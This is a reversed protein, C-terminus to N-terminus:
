SPALASFVRQVAPALVVILVVPFICLGLPLTLKPPLSAAKEEARALRKDRMEDSFTSLALAVDTGLELTQRLLSAFSFAERVGVREAWDRLAEGLSRGARVEGAMLELNVRFERDEPGIERAARDLAAEMGLGANICVVLMDLYDPFVSQYRARLLRRRRKLYTGPLLYALGAILLVAILREASRDEPLLAALAVFGLLPLIALLAIRALAFAAPAGPDFHGAQVLEARLRRRADAKLGLRAPDLRAIWGTAGGAPAAEGEPLSAFRRRVRERRWMADLLDHVVVLVGAFALATVLLLVVGSGTM